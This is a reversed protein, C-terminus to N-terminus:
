IGDGVSANLENHLIEDTDSGPPLEDPFIINRRVKYNALKARVHQELLEPTCSVAGGLVTDDFM